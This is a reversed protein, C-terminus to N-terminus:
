LGLPNVVDASDTLHITMVANSPNDSDFHDHAKNWLRHKLAWQTKLMWETHESDIELWDDFATSQAVSRATASDAYYISERPTWDITDTVSVGFGTSDSLGIQFHVVEVSDATGVDVLDLYNIKWKVSSM